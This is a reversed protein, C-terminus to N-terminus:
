RVMRLEVLNPESPDIFETGDVVFGNRQYFAIARHNGRLVWLQAPHDGLVADLMLQGLGSGHAGVLMYISFLHLSRVPPFGHEADPGRAEGSNAFGVLVGAHEAVVMRGPRPDISLYSTWFQERKRFVEESFQRAELVGSYTERWADVHVRAIKEADSAVADRVRHSNVSGM